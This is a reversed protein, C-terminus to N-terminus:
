KVEHKNVYYTVGGRTSTGTMWHDGDDDASWELETPVVCDAEHDYEQFTESDAIACAAAKVMSDFVGIVDAGERYMQKMVVYVAVRTPLPPVRTEFGAVFSGTPIHFHGRQIMQHVTGSEDSVRDGAVVPIFDGSPIGLVPYGFESDIVSGNLTYKM